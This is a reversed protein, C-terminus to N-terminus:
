TEEGSCTFSHRRIKVHQDISAGRQIEVFSGIFSDDGIVYGYSNVFGAIRVKEGLQVDDAIKSFDVNM